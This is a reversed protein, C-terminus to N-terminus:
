VTEYGIIDFSAIFSLRSLEMKKHEQQQVPKMISIIKAAYEPPSKTISQMAHKNTNTQEIRIVHKAANTSWLFTSKTMRSARMLQLNLNIFGLLLLTIMIKRRELEERAQTRQLLGKAPSLMLCADQQESSYYRTYCRSTKSTHIRSNLATGCTGAFIQTYNLTNLL